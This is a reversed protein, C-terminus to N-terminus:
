PVIGGADCAAKWRLGDLRAKWDPLSQAGTKAASRRPSGARGQRENDLQNYRVNGGVKPGGDWGVMRRATFDGGEKGM